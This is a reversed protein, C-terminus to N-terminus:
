GRCGRNASRKRSLGGGGWGTFGGAGPGRKNGFRPPARAAGVNFDALRALRLRLLLLARGALDQRGSRRRGGGGDGLATQGRDFELRPVGIVLRAPLGDLRVRLLIQPGNLFRGGGGAQRLDGGKQDVLPGGFLGDGHGRPQAPVEGAAPKVLLGVALSEFGLGPPRRRHRLPVVPLAQLRQGALRGLEERLGEGQDNLNLGPVNALASIPALGFGQPLLALLDFAPMPNIQGGDKAQIM